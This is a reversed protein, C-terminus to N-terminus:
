GKRQLHFSAIAIQPVTARENANLKVYLEDVVGGPGRYNPHYVDYRIGRIEVVGRHDSIRLNALCDHVDDLDYGLEQYDRQANRTLFVHGKEAAARVLDLDYLPTSPTM